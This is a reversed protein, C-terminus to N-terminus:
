QFSMDTHPHAARTAFGNNVASVPNKKKAKQALGAQGRHQLETHCWRAARHQDQVRSFAVLLLKFNTINQNMKAFIRKLCQLQLIFKGAFGGLIGRNM